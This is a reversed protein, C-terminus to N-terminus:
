RKTVRRIAASVFELIAVLLYLALVVSLLLAIDRFWSVIGSPELIIYALVIALTIIAKGTYLRGLWDVKGHNPAARKKDSAKKVRAENKLMSHTVM